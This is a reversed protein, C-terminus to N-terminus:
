RIEFPGTVGELRAIRIRGEELRVSQEFTFVPLDGDEEARAPAFRISVDHAGAAVGIREDVTIPRDGHFGAAKYVRDLRMEGDISVQLRYPVAHTECVEKRRMHLPLAALEDESLTRCDEVTGAMTRVAVGLIAGTAPDSVNVHTVVVILALLAGSAALRIGAKLREAV